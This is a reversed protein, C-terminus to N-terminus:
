PLPTQGANLLGWTPPDGAGTSWGNKDNSDVNTNRQISTGTATTGTSNLDFVAHARFDADVFGGPPVGGGVMHWEGAAAVVAAQIESPNAATDENDDRHTLVADMVRGQDDYLTFVNDTNTLGTDTSYWDYATDYNTPHAASALQAPGLTENGSGSPNCNAPLGMHVVIVDNTAVSLGDFVVLNQSERERLLFGNMSGGSVVRLEILDCNGPSTINANFENIVVQAMPGAEFDDAFILDPAVVRIVLRYNSDTPSGPGTHYFGAVLFYTGAPLAHAAADAPATGTGDILPCDFRGNNYANVLPAGSPDHLTLAGVSWFSSFCPPAPSQSGEIVEARISAGEPVTVAFFDNDGFVPMFGSVYVDSGVVANAEATSNNPEAENGAASQPKIELKYGAVVADSGTEEIWIYYSGAALGMTLASCDQIGKGADVAMQTGSSNLLRLSTAIAVCDMGSFDFSEFHLVAATALDVRFIDIDGVPALGGAIVVDGAFHPAADAQPLTNNPEVEVAQAGAILPFGLVFGVVASTLRSTRRM